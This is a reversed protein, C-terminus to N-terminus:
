SALVFGVVHPWEAPQRVRWWVALYARETVAVETIEGGFAVRVAEAGDPAEGWESLTGLGPQDTEEWGPGNGSGGEM